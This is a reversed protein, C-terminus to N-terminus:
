FLGSGAVKPVDQTRHERQWIGPAPGEMSLGNAACLIDGGASEAGADAQTGPGLISMTNKHIGSRKPVEDKIEEGLEDSITWSQTSKKEGMEKVEDGM